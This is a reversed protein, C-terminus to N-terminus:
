EYGGYIIPQSATGTDRYRTGGPMRVWKAIDWLTPDAGLFCAVSFFAIIQEVPLGEVRWWAHLSKGGSHVVAILPITTKTVSDTKTALYTIIRAQMEPSLGPDDIETILHRRHHVNDQCRASITGTKTMGSKAKMPNPVVFQAKPASSLMDKMPAIKAVSQSPGFCVLEDSAFLLPLLDAASYKPSVDFMARKEHCLVKEILHPQKEPWKFSTGNPKWDASSDISKTVAAQVEALSIDRHRVHVKCYEFLFSAVVEPPFSNKMKNAASLLWRHTNGPEPPTRFFQGLYAPFDYLRAM